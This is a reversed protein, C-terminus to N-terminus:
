NNGKILNKPIYRDHLNNFKVNLNALEKEIEKYKLNEKKKMNGFAQLHQKIKRFNAIEVGMAIGSVIAGAAYVGALIGGTAVFGIASAALGGGCSAMKAIGSKKSKENTEKELNELNNIVEQIEEKVQYIKTGINVIKKMSEKYNNLDLTKIENKYMEFNRDIKDMRDQFKKINAEGDRKNIYYTKVSESLNYFSMALNTVAVAPNNFHMKTETMIKNVIGGNKFLSVLESLKDYGLGNTFMSKDAEISHIIENKLKNMMGSKLQIKSLNNLNLFNKSIYNKVLHFSEEVLKGTLDKFKPAFIEKNEKNSLIPDKKYEKAASILSYFDVFEDKLYNRIDGAKSELTSNMVTNFDVSFNEMDEIGLKELQNMLENEDSKNLECVSLKSNWLKILNDYKSEDTYWEYLLSNFDEFKLLLNKFETKDQINNYPFKKYNINGIFLNKFEEDTFFLISNLSDKYLDDDCLLLKVLKRAKIFDIEDEDEDTKKKKEIKFIVPNNNEAIAIQAERNCYNCGM